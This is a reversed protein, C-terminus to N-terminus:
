EDGRKSYRRRRAALRERRAKCFSNGCRRTATHTHPSGEDNSGVCGLRSCSITTPAWGTNDCEPCTWQEGAGVDGPLELQATGALQHQQIRAQRDLIRDVAQRWEAPKPFFVAEKALEVAAASLLEMPVDQLSHFYLDITPDDLDTRMALALAAITEAFKQVDHATM